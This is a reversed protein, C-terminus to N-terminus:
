VMNESVTLALRITEQKGTVTVEVASIRTDFSAGFAQLTLRDGYSWDRGFIFDNTDQLTASINWTGRQSQIVSLAQWFVDTNTDNSIESVAERRSYPTAVGSSPYQPDNVFYYNSAGNEGWPLVATIEETWDATATIDRIIGTNTGLIISPSDGQPTRRDLGRQYPFVQFMMSQASSAVIDFYMPDGNVISMNSIEQLTELLVKRAVDISIVSTAIDTYAYGFDYIQTTLNPISRNGYFGNDSFAQSTLFTMMAAPTMTLVYNSAQQAFINVALRSTLLYMTDYATIVISQVGSENINRSVRRVFWITDLFLSRQKGISRWVEIITDKRLAGYRELYPMISPQNAGGSFQLTLAGVQNVTRLITMSVFQNTDATNVATIRNGSSDCIFIEYTAKPYQM